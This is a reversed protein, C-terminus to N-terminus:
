APQGTMSASTTGLGPLRQARAPVGVALADDPVDRTVVAGAGIVARRGIRLGPLVAAGIGVMADDDVTVSGGLNVGPAIHVFDGIANHHDISSNTNLIASCGVRTAPNVVAGACVVAGPGLDVDPAVMSFPHRAIALLLGAHRLQESIRRRVSNDGIAVIAADCGVTRLADLGGGIVKLSLIHRHYPSPPNEDIFVVPDVHAGAERMRLLIDGVVAAHGGAGVIAIRM